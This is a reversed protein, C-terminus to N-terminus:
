YDTDLLQPSGAAKVPLQESAIHLAACLHLATVPQGHWGPPAPSESAMIPQGGRNQLAALVEHLPRKSLAVAQQLASQQGVAGRVPEEAEQEEFAPEMPGLKNGLGSLAEHATSPM